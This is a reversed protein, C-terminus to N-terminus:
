YVRMNNKTEFDNFITILNIYSRCGEKLVLWTCDEM